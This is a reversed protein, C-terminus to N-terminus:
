KKRTLAIALRVAIILSILAEVRYRTVVVLLVYNSAAPGPHTAGPSTTPTVAGTVVPQPTTNGQTAPTGIPNFVFVGVLDGMSPASQGANGQTKVTLNYTGVGLYSHALVIPIEFSTNASSGDIQLGPLGSLEVYTEGGAIAM